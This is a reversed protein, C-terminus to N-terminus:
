KKENRTYFIGNKRTEQTNKEKRKVDNLTDAVSSHSKNLMAGTSKM